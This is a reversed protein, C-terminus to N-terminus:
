GFDNTTKPSMKSNKGQKFDNWPAFIGILNKQMENEESEWSAVWVSM